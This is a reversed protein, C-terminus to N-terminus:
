SFFKFFLYWSFHSFAYKISLFALAELARLRVRSGPWFTLAEPANVQDRVVQKSFIWVLEVSCNLCRFIKTQCHGFNQETIYIKQLTDGCTHTHTERCNEASIRHDGVQGFGPDALSFITLQSIKLSTLPLFIRTLFIGFMQLLSVSILHSKGDFPPDPGFDTRTQTKVSPLLLLLYVLLNTSTLVLVSTLCRLTGDWWSM